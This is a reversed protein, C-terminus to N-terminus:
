YSASSLCAILIMCSHATIFTRADFVGPVGPCASSFQVLLTPSCKSLGLFTLIGHLLQAFLSGRVPGLLSATQLLLDTCASPTVLPGRNPFSDCPIQFPRRPCDLVECKFLNRRLQITESVRIPSAFRGLIFDVHPPIKIHPPQKM